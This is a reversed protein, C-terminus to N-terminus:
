VQEIVKLGTRYGKETKECAKRFKGRITAFETM